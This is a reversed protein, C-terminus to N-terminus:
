RATEEIMRTSWHIAEDVAKDTLVAEALWSESKAQFRLTTTLAKLQSLTTSVQRQMEQQSTM